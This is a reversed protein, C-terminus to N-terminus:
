GMTIKNKPIAELTPYINGQSRFMDMLERDDQTLNLRREGVPPPGSHQSLRGGSTGGSNNSGISSRSLRGSSEAPEAEADASDDAPDHIMQLIRFSRSQTPQGRPQEVSAARSYTGAAMPNSPSEHHQEQQQRGNNTPSMMLRYQLM